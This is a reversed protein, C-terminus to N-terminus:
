PLLELQHGVRIGSSEISGAALELVYSAGLVPRDIRGPRLRESSAVVRDRRDCYLVDIPYSMRFTHIWRCPRILLAEGHRLPVHGILGKNRAQRSDAVELNDIVIRGQTADRVRM